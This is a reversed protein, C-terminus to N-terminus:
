NSINRQYTQILAQLTAGDPPAAIRPVDLKIGIDKYKNFPNDSENTIVPVDLNGPRFGHRLARQQLAPSMLYDVLLM